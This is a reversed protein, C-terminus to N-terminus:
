KSRVQRLLSTTRTSNAMSAQMVGLSVLGHMQGSRRNGQSSIPLRGYAAKNGVKLRLASM